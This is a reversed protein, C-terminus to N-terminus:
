RERKLVGDMISYSVPARLSVTPNHTSVIITLGSRNLSELLDMLAETNQSDLAGTPEDALLLKANQSLARAAAVRQRQGGSLANVKKGALDAIGMRELVERARAVAKKRSVGDVTLPLCVNELATDDGLLGFDQLVVGIQRRRLACKARDSARTMDTNEFFYAGSTPTDLGALIHLLTSKGSGSPGTVSIFDGEKVELDVGRLARVETERGPDYTKSVDKLTILM